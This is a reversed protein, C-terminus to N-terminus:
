DGLGGLRPAGAGHQEEFVHVDARHWRDEASGGAAPPRPASRLREVEERSLGIYRMRSLRLRAAARAATIGWLRHYRTSLFSRAEAESRAGIDAWGRAASAVAEDLLRHVSDSAEGYAGFVLGVTDPYTMLRTLVPGQPVTGMRVAGASVDFHEEDLRRAHAAYDSPVKRARETVAHRREGLARRPPQTRYDAVGFHVMKFDILYQAGLRRTGRQRPPFRLDNLIGDPVIGHASFGNQRVEPPLIELTELREARSRLSDQAIQSV